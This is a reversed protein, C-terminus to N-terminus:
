PENRRGKPEKPESNDGSAPRSPVIPDNMIQDLEGGKGYVDHIAKLGKGADRGINDENSDNKEPKSGFLSGIWEFGWM